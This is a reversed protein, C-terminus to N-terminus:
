SLKLCVAYVSTSENFGTGNHVKGRWGANGTPVSERLTMNGLVGGGTVQWGAPCRVEGSGGSYRPVAFSASVTSIAIQGVGAPGRPGVPGVPGAPGVAGRAGEVGRPGAPGAVGDQAFRDTEDLRLSDCSVLCATAASQDYGCRVFREHGIGEGDMERPGLCARVVDVGYAPHELELRNAPSGLGPCPERLRCRVEVQVSVDGFGTNFVHKGAEIARRILGARLRTTAADFFLGDRADALCADLDTSVREVGHARALAELKERNRGVLVPDPMLRDGNRLRVGGDARIAAVSRILHQNTGMRGTVGNMILGVRREAMYRAAETVNMDPSM